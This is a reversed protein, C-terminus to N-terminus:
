PRHVCTRRLLTDDSRPRCNTPEDGSSSSHAHLGLGYLADPQERDAEDSARQDDAREGDGCKTGQGVLGVGLHEVAADDTADAVRLARADGAGGDGDDVLFGIECAVCGRVIFALVAQDVHQRAAVVHLHRQLAEALRQAGVHGHGDTLDAADIDGHFHAREGLRDRDFRRRLEQLGVLGVHVRLQAAIGVL